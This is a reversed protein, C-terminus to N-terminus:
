SYFAESAHKKHRCHLQDVECRDLHFGLGCLSPVISSHVKQMEQVLVKRVLKVNENVFRM